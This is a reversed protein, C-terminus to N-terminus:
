RHPHKHTSHIDSTRSARQADCLNTYRARITVAKSPPAGREGTEVTHDTQGNTHKINGTPVKSRWRCRRHSAGPRHRPPPPPHRSEVYHGGGDGSPVDSTELGM